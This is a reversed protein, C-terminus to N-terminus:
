LISMPSRPTSLPPCVERDHSSHHFSFGVAKTAKGTWGDGTIHPVKSLEERAQRANVQACLRRDAGGHRAEARGAAALTHAQSHCPTCLAQRQVFEEYGPSSQTQSKLLNKDVGHIGPKFTCVQRERRAKEERKSKLEADRRKVWSEARQVISTNPDDYVVDRPTRPQVVGM